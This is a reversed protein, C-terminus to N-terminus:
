RLAFRLVDCIGFVAFATCIALALWALALLVNVLHRKISM